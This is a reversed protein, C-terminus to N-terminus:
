GKTENKIFCCLIENNDKFVIPLIESSCFIHHEDDRGYNWRIQLVRRNAEINIEWRDKSTFYKDKGYIVHFGNFKEIKKFHPLILAKDRFKGSKKVKIKGKNDSNLILLNNEPIIVKTM